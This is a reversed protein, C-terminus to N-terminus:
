RTDYTGEKYYPIDRSTGFYWDIFDDFGKVQAQAELTNLGLLMRRYDGLASAFKDQHMNLIRFEEYEM